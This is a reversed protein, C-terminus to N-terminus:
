QSLSIIKSYGVVLAGKGYVHLSRDSRVSSKTDPVLTFASGLKGKLLGDDSATMVTRGQFAMGHINTWPAVEDGGDLDIRFTELLSGDQRSILSVHVYEDKRSTVKRLLLVTKAEFRISVDRLTEDKNLEGIPLDFTRFRDDDKSALFWSDRHLDRNVGLITEQMPAPNPDARFWCQRAFVSCVPRSLLEGNPLRRDELLMGSSLRFLSNRSTSFVPGKGLLVETTTTLLPRVVGKSIDSIDFLYLISSNEEQEEDPCLVLFRDFVGFRMGKQYPVGLKGSTASLNLSKKYCVLVGGEETVVVIDRQILQVFLIRGSVELLVEERLVSKSPVVATTLEQCDPCHKRSAPFWESCKSCKVLEDRYSQVLQLPFEGRQERKLHLLLQDLLDSSLVEPKRGVKPYAVDSDFITKGHQARQLVGRYQEHTGARFPHQRLIGRTLLVAYSYWDMWPEFYDGTSLDIGYLEPPLYMETGVSCPFSPISWSDVDVWAIKKDDTRLMVAGDNFDSVVINQTHFRTLDEGIQYFIQAIVKPTIDNTKCFSPSFVSKLNQFKRSLRRMGFGVVSKRYNKATCKPVVVSSPLSLNLDLFAQIKEARTRTPTKYVGIVQSQPHDPDQHITKEGGKAILTVKGIEVERESTGIFLKM